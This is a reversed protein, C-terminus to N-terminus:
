PLRCGYYLLYQSVQRRGGRPRPRTQRTDVVRAPGAGAGRAAGAEGQPRPAAGGGGAAELPLGGPGAGQAGEGRRHDGRLRVGARFCCVNTPSMSVVPRLFQLHFSVSGIIIYSVRMNYCCVDVRWEMLNFYVSFAFSKRFFIKVPKRGSCPVTCHPTNINRQLLWSDTSAPGLWLM